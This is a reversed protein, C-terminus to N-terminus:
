PHRLLQQRATGFEWLHVMAGTRRLESPLLIHSNTLIRIVQHAVIKANPRFARVSDAAVKAKSEGVHRRRFLFQRNLNSTEITDVDIQSHFWNLPASLM